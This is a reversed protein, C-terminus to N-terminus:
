AKQKEAPIYILDGEKVEQDYSINNIRGLQQVTINYRQCINELSDGQQVIYIKLRSFEEEGEKAFLKTLYM